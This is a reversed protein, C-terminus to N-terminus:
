FLIKDQIFLLFAPGSIGHHMKSKDESIQRYFKHCISFKKSYEWVASVESRKATTEIIRIDTQDAWATWM